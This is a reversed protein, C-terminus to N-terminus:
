CHPRWNNCAEIIKSQQNWDLSTNLPLSLIEETLKETIPLESHKLESYAIQQHPAIPYHISCEIGCESLYNRLSTRYKTRVVFLHWVHNKNLSKENPRYNANPLTINANSIENLFRHAIQRRIEIQNEYDKLKTRLIVAQIEDLRSNIGKLLNNYKENSGYNRLARIINALEPDNTTVAGADGLAGLNKGPYFSFAAADGLNGARKRGDGAGHAQAADELLLLKHKAAIARLTEMDALQGYLHVALIARTKPSIKKELNNTSINYTIPDPEVLVPKLRNETLALISAIFTNAPVIVEDGETLKGQEKYARFILKLADLGNAVGICNTTSCYQSFEEEFLRCNEGLIYQGSDILDMINHILNERYQRNIEKLNLYPIM